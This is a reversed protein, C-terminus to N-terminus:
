TSKASPQAALFETARGLERELNGVLAALRDSYGDRSLAEVEAALAQATTAGVAGSSGKLAHAIQKIRACDTGQVADRLEAQHRESSEVFIAAVEARLEDDGAALRLAAELDVPPPMPGSSPLSERPLLREIAAALDASRIPKTVYADMGAALCREEDGRMAHATVAVVPIRGGGSFSSGAAPVWTGNSARAELDRIAEVAAFGDMDPMQVDMLVLDFRDRELAALAERGTGAVAVAHGQREVLRVALRQNVVNDEALLVRLRGQRERLVHRTVLTAQEGRAPVAGIVNLIMDLLEGSTIPKTLYGAIGIARCRAADGPRGASSLMIMTTGANAPDAKIRECLTFGDMVPMEADTLVLTVPEGAASASQLAALAADGDSVVTPVLGWHVLMDRVIRRNVAHDDVVLTALGRLQEVLLPAPVPGPRGLGFHGTFHFSSGQGVASEVWIRGGMLGVLRRTIALGLGTGGYRRTTSSDAQEFADFVLAQKEPPIGIGTDTVTFHLAAGETPETEISVRVIVSGHETFKIANGVLNLIVQRLRGPDGVLADPVDASVDAVLELGKQHARLALPKLAHSLSSRLSFDLRALELKGAEIKSFDLIDNILDLLSDASTKVMQLYERQEAGLETELLLETMGMVGNMPTRIEHSMNALFESKARSAAEAAEKAARLEAASRANELALSAQDAFAQALRIEDDQFAGGGPRGVSLVGIAENRYLIPVSLVVRLGAAELRARMEPTMSLRPDGLLDDTAVPRRENVALGPASTGRHLVMGPRWDSGVEGSVALLLLDGTGGDVRYLSALSASFLGRVSGVIREAVERPDLSQSIVRSVEALSEAARRRRETEAYLRANEIAIGAQEALNTALARADEDFRHGRERYVNLTGLIRSGVRIPVCMQAGTRDSLIRARHEPLLRPDAASDATIITEGTAAVRGSISEGIRLRERAMAGAAGPTVAVRVLSEGEILRFGAEGHFLEAAAESIGGLVTHLDLGRTVRQTVAVLAGLDRRRAESEHFLRARELAIAAHAALISLLEVETPTFTHPVSYHCILVGHVVEGSTVPAALYARPAKARILAGTDPTYELAADAERDRTWVPRREAFARGAVGEGPRLLLNRSLEPDLHLGRRVVLGGRAEDYAYVGSADGGLLDLITQTVRDLVLDVDLTSALQGAVEYLKTAQRAQRETAEHLRVSRLLTGTQQGVTQFIAVESDDFRRRREWWVLYLTGMVQGDLVLPIILGSQHPFARFLPFTFRPDRAVDDSWVVHGKEFVTERFGQETLPVPSTALVELLHKPVHYAAVPELLTRETNVLHAAVTGAGTLRALERCIRRLAEHLDLTGGIVQAIALLAATEGLRTELAAQASTLRGLMEEFAHALGALERSGGQPVRRTTDGATIAEATDRLAAVPRSVRAAVVVSLTVTALLALLTWGVTRRYAANLDAQVEARAQTVWVKWGVDPVTAFGALRQDGLTGTYLPIQGSDAATILPWFSVQSFDKGERVYEQNRHALITGRATMAQAYGTEGVRIRDALAQIAALKLGATVAGRLTGYGDLIPAGITITREQGVRHVGVDADVVLRRSRVLERFWERNSVDIGVTSHGDPRTPPDSVVISGSVDVIAIGGLAPYRARTRAVLPAVSREGFARYEEVHDALTRVAQQHSRLFQDYESALGKALLEYRETAARIVSDHLSGVLAIEVLVAPIVAAFIAGSILITKLSLRHFM